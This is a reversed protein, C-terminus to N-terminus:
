LSRPSLYLPVAGPVSHGLRTTVCDESSGLAHELVSPDQQPQRETAPPARRRDRCWRASDARLPVQTGTPRGPTRASWRGQSRHAAPANASARRSNDRDGDIRNRRVPPYRTRARRLRFEVLCPRLVVLVEAFYLDVVVLHRRPNRHGPHVSGGRYQVRHDRILAAGIAAETIRRLGLAHRKRRLRDRRRGLVAGVFAAVSPLALPAVSSCCRAPRRAPPLRSSESAIKKAAPRPRANVGHTNGITGIRELMM